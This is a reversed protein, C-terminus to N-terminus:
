PLTCEEVLPLLPHNETPFSIRIHRDTRGSPNFWVANDLSRGLEEICPDIGRYDDQADDFLLVADRINESFQLCADTRGAEPSIPGDIWVLDFDATFATPFANPAEENCLVIDPNIGHTGLICRTKDAWEKESELTVIYKDNLKVCTKALVYTSFGSGFELVYQVSPDNAFRHLLYGVDPYIGTTNGCITLKAIADDWNIRAEASLATEWKKYM